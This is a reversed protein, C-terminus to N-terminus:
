NSSEGIVNEEPGDQLKAEAVRAEILEALEPSSVTALWPGSVASGRTYVFTPGAAILEGETGDNLVFVLSHMDTISYVRTPTGDQLLDCVQRFEDPEFAFIAKNRWGRFEIRAIDDLLFRFAIFDPGPAILSEGNWPRGIRGLAAGVADHLFGTEQEEVAAELLPVAALDGRDSLAEAALARVSWDNSTDALARRMAILAADDPIERLASIARWQLRQDDSALAFEIIDIHQLGLQDVHLGARNRIARDESALAQRLEAATQIRHPRPTPIPNGLATWVLGFFLLLVVLSTCRM